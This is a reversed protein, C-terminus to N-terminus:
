GAQEKLQGLINDLEDKYFGPFRGPKWTLYLHQGEQRVLLERPPMFYTLGSGVIIVFFAFFVFPMGTIDVFILGTWRKMGVLRAQFPGLRGTEGIKLSLEGLLKDDNLLRLVLQPNDGAMDRMDSDAYCKAKVLFSLENFRFTGYSPADLRVPHEFDMRIGIHEGEDNLLSVLFEMGFFRSLYVRVGRYYVIKNIILQETTQREEPGMFLVTASLQKLDGNEWFDPKVTKLQLADQLFFSGALLGREETQWQGGAPFIEEEALNVMGRKQTLVIFLSAMIIIVFGVHLLANGWYGWPNKVFRSRTEAQGIKIYGHKGVIQSLQKDGCALFIERDNQHRPKAFTRQFARVIQDSCSFLLSLLLMLLLVVFWWSTFVQHLQLIADIKAPIPYKSQWATMEAPSVAFRQPIIYAISVAAIGAVLLTLVTKRSVLFRKLFNM